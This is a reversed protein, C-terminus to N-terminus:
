EVSEGVSAKGEIAEGFAAGGGWSDQGEPYALRCQGSTVLQGPERPSIRIPQLLARLRAWVIKRGPPAWRFWGWRGETLTDVLHLGRGHEAFVDTDPLLVPVAPSSDVAEIILHDHFLRLSLGVTSRHDLCTAAQVANAVLESVLQVATEAAQAPVGRAPALFRATFERSWRPASDTVAFQIYDTAAPRPTDPLASFVVSGPPATMMTATM